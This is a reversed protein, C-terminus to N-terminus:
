DGRSEPSDTDSTPTLQRLAARVAWEGLVAVPGVIVLVPLSMISAFVMSTIVDPMESYRPGPQPPILLLRCVPWWVVLLVLLFACVVVVRRTKAAWPSGFRATLLAFVIGYLLVGVVLSLATHTLVERSWYPSGDRGEFEAEAEGAYWLAYTFLFAILIGICGGLISLAVISRFQTQTGTM